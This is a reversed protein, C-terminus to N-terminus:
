AYAKDVPMQAPEIADMPPTKGRSAGHIAKLRSSRQFAVLRLFDQIQKRAIM